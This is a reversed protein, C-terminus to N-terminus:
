GRAVEKLAALENRLADLEALVEPLLNRAAACFEASAEHRFESYDWDGAYLEYRTRDYAHPVAVVEWPAGQAKKLWYRLRDAADKM